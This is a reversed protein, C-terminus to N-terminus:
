CHLPAASPRTASLSVAPGTSTSRIRLMARERRRFRLHSNKARYNLYRGVERRNDNGLKRVAAPYSRLGDTVITEVEGHRKLTKKFFHLAASKDPTKTVKKGPVEGGRGFARWLYHTESNIKEFVDDVHWSWHQYGRMSSIRQRGIDAAFMPGFRNRCLRMTEHCIGIGPALPMAEFNRQSQPFRVWM